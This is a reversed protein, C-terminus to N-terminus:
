KVNEIEYEKKAVLDELKSKKNEEKEKKSKEPKQKLRSIEAQYIENTKRLSSLENKHVEIELRLKQPISCFIAM